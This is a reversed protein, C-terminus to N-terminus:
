VGHVHYLEARIWSAHLCALDLQGRRTVDVEVWVM